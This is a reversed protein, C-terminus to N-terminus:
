LVCCRASTPSPDPFSLPRSPARAPCLPSLTADPEAIFHQYGYLLLEIRPRIEEDRLLLLRHPGAAVPAREDADAMACSVGGSLTVIVDTVDAPKPQIDLPNGGGSWGHM